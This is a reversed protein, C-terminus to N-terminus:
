LGERLSEDVNRRPTAARRHFARELRPRTEQLKQLMVWVGAIANVKGRSLSKTECISRLM